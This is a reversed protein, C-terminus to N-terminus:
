IKAHTVGALHTVLHHTLTKHFVLLFPFSIRGLRLLRGIKLLAGLRGCGTKGEPYFM